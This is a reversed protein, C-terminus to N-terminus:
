YHIPQARRALVGGLDESLWATLFPPKGGLKNATWPQTLFIESVSDASSLAYRADDISLAFVDGYKVPEKSKEGINVDPM